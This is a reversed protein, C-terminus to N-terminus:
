AGQQFLRERTRAHSEWPFVGPGEQMKHDESELESPDPWRTQPSDQNTRKNENRQPSDVM